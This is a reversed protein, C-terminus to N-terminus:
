EPRFARGSRHTVNQDGASTAAYTQRDRLPQRGRAVVHNRDRPAFAAFQAPGDGFEPVATKMEEGAIEAM